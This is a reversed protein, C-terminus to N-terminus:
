ALISHSPVDYQILTFEPSALVVIRQRDGSIGVGTQIIQAPFTNLPISLDQSAVAVTGITSIAASAPDLLFVNPGPAPPPPPPPLPTTPPPPPPPAPPTLSRTVVLAQGDAGFAVAVVPATLDLHVRSNASLDVITIGGTDTQFGGNPTSVPKQYEGIVLFRNDPSVAVASPPASVTIPALM